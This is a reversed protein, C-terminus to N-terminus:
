PGVDQVHTRVTRRARRALGLAEAVDEDWGYADDRFMVRGGDVFATHYLLRVQIENRIPVFTEEGTAQAREWADTVGRGAPTIAGLGTVVILMTSIAAISPDVSLAEYALAPRGIRRLVAAQRLAAQDPLVLPWRDRRGAVVRVELDVLRQVYTELLERRARYRALPLPPEGRGALLLHVLQLWGPALLVVNVLLLLSVYSCIQKRVWKQSCLLKQINLLTM